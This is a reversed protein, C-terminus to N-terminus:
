STDMNHYEVVPSLPVVENIPLAPFEVAMAQYKDEIDSGLGVHLLVWTEHGEKVNSLSVEPLSTIEARAIRSPRYIPGPSACAKAVLAASSEQQLRSFRVIMTLIGTEPSYTPIDLGNFTRIYDLNGSLQVLVPDNHNLLNYAFTKQFDSHSWDDFGIHLSCLSHDKHLHFMSAEDEPNMYM